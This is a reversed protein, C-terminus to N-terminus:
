YGVKADYRRRADTSRTIWEQGDTVAAGTFTFSSLHANLASGNATVTWTPNQATASAQELWALAIGQPGYPTNISSQAITFGSDIAISVNADGGLMAMILNTAGGPTLSGAQVTATASSAGANQTDFAPSTPDFAGVAADGFNINGLTFTHTASTKGACLAYFGLLQRAGSIVTNLANWTNSQSDAMTCAASINSTAALILTAGTTNVSASVGGNATTMSTHAVLNVAM